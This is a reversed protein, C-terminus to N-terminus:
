QDILSNHSTLWEMLPVFHEEHHHDYSGQLVLLLPQGDLWAFEGPDQMDEDSIVESLELFRLFGEKWEKHVQAWPKYRNNEYIWANIQNIYEEADVNFDQPWGLFEPERNEIAAEMRAISRQQWAWLHAVVDKISLDGPLRPDVLNAETMRGLLDEWRDYEDRLLGIWYEKGDM